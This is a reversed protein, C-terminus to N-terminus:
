TRNFWPFIGGFVRVAAYYIYRLQFDGLYYLFVKDAIKRKIGIDKRFQYLADHILSAYYTVPRGTNVNIRGDPTGILFIDLINFKPSCGDWAYGNGSSGKITINGSTDIKLWTNEFEQKIPTCLFQIDEKIVFKFIGKRRKAPNANM